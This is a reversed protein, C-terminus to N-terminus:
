FSTRVAVALVIVLVIPSFAVALALVPLLRLGKVFSMVALVIGLLGLVVGVFFLVLALNRGAPNGAGDLASTIGVFFGSVMLVAGVIAAGLAVVGKQKPGKTITQIPGTVPSSDAAKSMPLAYEPSGGTTM